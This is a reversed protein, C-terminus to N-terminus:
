EPDGGEEAPHLRILDKDLFEIQDWDVRYLCFTHSKPTFYMWDGVSFCKCIVSKGDHGIIGCLNDATKVREHLKDLEIRTQDDGWDSMCHQAQPFSSSTRWEPDREYLASLVDSIRTLEDFEEPTM